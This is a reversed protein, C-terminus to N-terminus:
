YGLLAIRRSFAVWSCALRKTSVYEISTLRALRLIYPNAVLADLVFGPTGVFRVADAADVTDAGLVDRRNPCTNVGPM